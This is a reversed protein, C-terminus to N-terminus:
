APDRVELAYQELGKLPCLPLGPIAAFTPWLCPLLVAAIVVSNIRM